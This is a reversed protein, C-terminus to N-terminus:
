ILEGVSKIMIDHVQVHPPTSLTFVIADAIDSPFLIPGSTVAEKTGDKIYGEHFESSVVGPCIMSIKIGTKHFNLEQRLNETLATVAYKTASYVNIVPTPMMVPYRGAISGLHVIHGAINNDRMSRVAERTCICLGIVNVDFTSRWEDTSGETLTTPRIFGANNILVSIPGLNEKVWAFAELIQNEESMDCKLAYLEGPADTMSYIM